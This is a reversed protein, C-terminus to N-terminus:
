NGTNYSGACTRLGEELTIKAKWGTRKYLKETSLIRREPDSERYGEFVIDYEEIQLEKACREVLELITVEEQTAM